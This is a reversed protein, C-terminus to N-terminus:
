GERARSRGRRYWLFSPLVGVVAGFLSLGLFFPAFEPHVSEPNGRVFLRTRTGALEPDVHAVRYHICRVLPPDVVVGGGSRSTMSNWTPLGAGPRPSIVAEPPEVRVLIEVGYDGRETLRPRPFLWLDRAREKGSDPEWTCSWSGTTGERLEFEDSERHPWSAFSYLNWAAKGTLLCFM